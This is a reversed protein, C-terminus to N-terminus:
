LATVRCASHMGAPTSLAPVPMEGSSPDIPSAFIRNRCTRRGDLTYSGGYGEWTGGAQWSSRIAERLVSSNSDRLGARLLPRLCLASADFGLESLPPPDTKFFRRYKESFEGDRSTDESPNAAPSFILRISPSQFSMPLLNEAENEAYFFSGAFGAQELDAILPAVSQPSGSYYILQPAATNFSTVWADSYDEAALRFHSVHLALTGARELFGETIAQSHAASGSLMFIETFGSAASWEADAAGHVRDDPSLWLTGPLSDGGPIPTTEAPFVAPIGTTHLPQIASFLGDARTHLIACIVDAQSAIRLISASFDQTTGRADYATLEVRWGANELGSRYEELALGAGNRIGNGFASHPGTLETLTVLRVKRTSIGCGSLIGAGMLLLLSLAGATKM